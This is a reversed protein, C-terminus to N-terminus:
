LLRSPEMVELLTLHVQGAPFAQEDLRVHWDGSLRDAVAPGTREVTEAVVVPVAVLGLTKPM